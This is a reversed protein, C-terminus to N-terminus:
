SIQQSIDRLGSIFIYDILLIDSSFFSVGVSVEIAEGNFLCLVWTSITFTLGARSRIPLSLICSEIRGFWDLLLVLDNWSRWPGLSYLGIIELLLFPKCSVLRWLFLILVRLKVGRRLGFYSEINDKIVGSLVSFLLVSGFFKLKLNVRIKLIDPQVKAFKLVVM